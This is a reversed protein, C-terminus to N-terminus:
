PAEKAQIEAKLPPEDDYRVTATKLDEDVRIICLDTSFPVRILGLEIEADPHERIPTEIAQNEQAAGYGRISLIQSNDYEFARKEGTTEVIRVTRLWRKFEGLKMSSLKGAGISASPGAVDLNKILTETAVAAELDGAKTYDLKLRQLETVYTRDINAVAKAVSAAYNTKLEVARDPLNGPTNMASLDRGIPGSANVEKLLSDIALAAELNGSKTYDTKLNLLVEAFKANIPAIARARAGEYSTRLTAVRDPLPKTEQSLLVMPALLGLLTITVNRTM